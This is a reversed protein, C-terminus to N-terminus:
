GQPPPVSRCYPRLPVIKNIRFSMTAKEEPEGAAEGSGGRTNGCPRSMGQGPQGPKEGSLETLRSVLRRGALNGGGNSRSGM